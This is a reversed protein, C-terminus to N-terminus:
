LALMFVHDTSRRAGLSVGLGAARCGAMRPLADLAALQNADTLATVRATLLAHDQPSLRPQLRALVAEM